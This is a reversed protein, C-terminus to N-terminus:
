RRALGERGLLKLMEEDGYSLAHHIELVPAKNAVDVGYWKRLRALGLGPATRYIYVVNAQSFLLNHVEQPERTTGVMSIFRERGFQICRKLPLPIYQATCLWAYEDCVLTLNGLAFAIAPGQDAMREVDEGRYIVRFPVAPDSAGIAGMHDILQAASRVVVDGELAPWKGEPDVFLARRCRAVLTKAKTTKGSGQQGTLTVIVRESV